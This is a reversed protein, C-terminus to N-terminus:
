WLSILKRVKWRQVKITNHTPTNKHTHKTHAHLSITRMNELFQTESLLLLTEVLKKKQNKLATESDTQQLSFM